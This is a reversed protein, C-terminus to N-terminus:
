VTMQVEVFYWSSGLWLVRGDAEEAQALQACRRGNESIGGHGFSSSSLRRGWRSAQSGLLCAQGLNWRQAAVAEGRGVEPGPRM